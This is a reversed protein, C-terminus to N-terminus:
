GPSPAKLIGFWKAFFISIFILEVDADCFIFHLNSGYVDLESIRISVFKADTRTGALTSYSSHSTRM